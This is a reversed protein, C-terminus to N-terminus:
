GISACMINVFGCPGHAVTHYPRNIEIYERFRAEDADSMTRPLGCNALCNRVNKVLQVRKEKATANTMHDVTSVFLQQEENRSESEKRSLRVVASLNAAPTQSVRVSLVVVFHTNLPYKEVFHCMSAPYQAQKMYFCTANSMDWKEVMSGLAEVTNFEVILQGRASYGNMTEMVKRLDTHCQMDPGGLISGLRELYESAEKRRGDSVSNAM